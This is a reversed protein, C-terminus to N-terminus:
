RKRGLHVTPYMHSLVLMYGQSLSADWKLHLLLVPGTAEQYLLKIAGFVMNIELKRPLRHSKM